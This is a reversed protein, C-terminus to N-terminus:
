KEINLLKLERQSLNEMRKGTLVTPTLFIVLESRNKLRETQKFLRGLGIIDALLPVKTKKESKKDQILGALVITRGDAVKVVTQTERVALVPSKLSLEASEFSSEGVQDTIIPHINMMVEGTPSIQPTVELVLGIDVTRSTVNSSRTKTEEDITSSVEFFVESRVVKMAAKQNNMVSIQPSSLIKVEGQESMARLILTFDDTSLATQFVTTAAAAGQGPITLPQLFINGGALAANVNIGASNIIATWNLGLNYEDTLTVDVVKAQIMVQRQVSGEIAELFEAVRNLNVPFDNVVILGSMKNITFKGKGSVIEKLGKELDVWLDAADESTITGSGSTTAGGAGSVSIATSFSSTGKRTTTIYNLSFIRTEQSMKSVRIIRNKIKYQLGLPALLADLAALPHVRKVELTANGSVDPDLVVNYGITKSLALLTERIDANRVSFSILQEPTKREEMMPVVLEELKPPQSSPPTLAPPAVPRPPTHPPPAACSLLLMILVVGFTPLIIGKKKMM